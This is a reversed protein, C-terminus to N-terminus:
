GDAAESLHEQLVRHAHEFATVHETIPESTLDEVRRIAEEIAAESAPESQSSLDKPTPIKHEVAYSRIVAALEVTAGRSGNTSLEGALTFKEIM